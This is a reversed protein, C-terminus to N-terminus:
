KMRETVTRTWTILPKGKAREQMAQMPLVSIALIPAAIATPLAALAISGLIGEQRQRPGPIVPQM